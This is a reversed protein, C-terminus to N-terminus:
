PSVDPLLEATALEARPRAARNRQHQNVDHRLHCRQCLAALNGASCDTEDHNIHAVTLVIRIIRWVGWQFPPRLGIPFGDRGTEHFTGREDRYGWAGNRVGCWECCHDAAARVRASIGSWDKPYLHRCEARIPM